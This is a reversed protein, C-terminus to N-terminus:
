AYIRRRVDDLGAVRECVHALAFVGAYPADAYDFSAAFEAQAAIFARREGCRLAHVAECGYAVTKVASTGVEHYVTYGLFSM